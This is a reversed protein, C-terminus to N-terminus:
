TSDTFSGEDFCEVDLVSHIKTDKQLNSATNIMTDFPAAYTGLAILLTSVLVHSTM